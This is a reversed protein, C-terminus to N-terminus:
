VSTTEQSQLGAGPHPLFLARPLPRCPRSAAVGGSGSRPLAAPFVIEVWVGAAPEGSRRPAGAGNERSGVGPRSGASFLLWGPFAARRLRRAAARGCLFPQRRYGRFAPLLRICRPLPPPPRPCPVCARHDISSRGAGRRLTKVCLLWGIPAVLRPADPRSEVLLHRLCSAALLVKLHGSNLPPGQLEM